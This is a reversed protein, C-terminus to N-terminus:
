ILRITSEWFFRIMQSGGHQYHLSFSYIPMTYNLVKIRHRKVILLFQNLLLTVWNMQVDEICMESTTIALTPVQDKRCKRLLKCDLAQMVFMITPDCIGEVDLGFQRIFMHFKEEM